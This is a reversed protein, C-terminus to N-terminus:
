RQKYYIAGGECDFSIIKSTATRDKHIQTKKIYKKLKGGIACTNREDFHRM